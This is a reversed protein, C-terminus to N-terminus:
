HKLIGLEYLRVTTGTSKALQLLEADMRAYNAEDGVAEYHDRLTIAPLLYNRSLPGAQSNKRLTPWVAKLKPLNDLPTASYRMAMGTLYLDERLTNLLERDCSPALYVPRPSHAALAKVFGVSAASPVAGEARAKKWVLSRYDDDVLGAQHVVLVDTRLDLAHQEVWLPYTDMEGNALVVADRDVSALVDAAVDLLPPALGGRDKLAISWTTMAQENGAMAAQSLKPGCLEARGADKAAARDLALYGEPKPFELYYTAIESEFSGPVAEEMDDAITQLREKDPKSLSGNNTSLASNRETQFYAGWAFANGPTTITTNLLLNGSYGLSRSDWNGQYSNNFEPIPAEDKKEGTETQAVARALSLVLGLCFLARNFNRIRM